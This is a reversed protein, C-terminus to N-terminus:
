NYLRRWRKQFRILDFIASGYEGSITGNFLKGMSIRDEILQICGDVITKDESDNTVSMARIDVEILCDFQMSMGREPSM